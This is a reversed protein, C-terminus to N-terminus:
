WRRHAAARPSQRARARQELTASGIKLEAKEQELRKVTQLKAEIDRLRAVQDFHAQQLKSFQDLAGHTNLLALIASQRERKAEIETKRRSIDARLRDMESLLFQRRNEVVKAHFTEVEDLRVMIADPIVVKAQEYTEKVKDLSSEVVERVGTEYMALAQSDVTNEDSLKNIHRTIEDAERELERYQSLVKFQSLDEKTKKVLDTLRIREAELQGRSGWVAGLTGTKAAEQLAAISKKKDKLVQWDSADEWDLGLLFANNVQIDWSSQMRFHRFPDSFADKNSRM